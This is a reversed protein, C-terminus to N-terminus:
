GRRLSLRGEQDFRYVWSFISRSSYCSLCAELLVPLDELVPLTDVKTIDIWLTQGESSGQESTKMVEGMFVFLGVGPSHGADIFVTGCFRLLIPVQGTEELIERKAATYLDEGAEIHGGIANYQGSWPHEPENRRLLLIQDGHRLFTLTRPVILYRDPDINQNLLSM